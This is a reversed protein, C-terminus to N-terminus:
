TYTSRHHLARTVYTDRLAGATAGAQLWRHGFEYEFTVPWKAPDADFPGARLVDAVRDIGPRLSFLPWLYLNANWHKKSQAAFLANDRSRIHVHQRHDTYHLHNHRKGQPDGHYANYVLSLQSIPSADMVEVAQDIFRGTCYWSEEWHIWYTYKHRRLHALILNLSRAQGKEKQTKNSFHVDPFTQRLEAVYPGSNEDYENIVWYRAIRPSRNFHLFTRLARQLEHMKNPMTVYSTCTFLIDGREPPDALRILRLPRGAAAWCVLALLATFVGLYLTGHPM